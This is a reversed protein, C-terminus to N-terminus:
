KAGGKRKPKMAAQMAKTAANVAVRVPDLQLRAYIATTRESRHGLSKGVIALSTGGAAQWSGLTRRLDHIRVDPLAAAKCVRRWAKTPNTVFREPNDAQPFVWEGAASNQRAKLITMAPPSLHVTLPKATKFKAAPITWTGATLDVEDWRMSRVNGQRQGTWLCTNFLDSYLSGEAKLAATFRGLEDANLFRERSEEAFRQVGECPNNGTYGISRARNFMTSLLALVRNATIPKDKGIRTHLGSVDVSKIESLRRSSWSELHHKWRSEDTGFSRKRMKAQGGFWAWLEGLTTEERIARKEAMPDAGGAIDGLKKACLKRAQDVTIEDLAGLRVRQPRGNVWKYVYFSRADNATIMLALGTQATDYVWTRGEDPPRLTDLMRRSFDVKLPGKKQDSQAIRMHMARSM